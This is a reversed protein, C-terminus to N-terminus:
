SRALIKGRQSSRRGSRTGEVVAHGGVAEGCTGAGQWPPPPTAGGHADAIVRYAVGAINYSTVPIFISKCVRNPRQQQHSQQRRVHRQRRSQRRRRRNAAIISLPPLLSSLSQLWFPLDAAETTQGRSCPADPGAAKGCTGAGQWTPMPVRASGVCEGVVIDPYLPKSSVFCM